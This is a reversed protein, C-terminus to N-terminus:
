RREAGSQGAELEVSKAGDEARAGRADSTAPAAGCQGAEYEVSKAGDEARAGRDDSIAPATRRLEQEATGRPESAASRGEPEMREPDTHPWHRRQRQSEGARRRVHFM